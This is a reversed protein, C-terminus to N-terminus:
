VGHGNLWPGLPQHAFSLARILCMANGRQLQVALENLVVQKTPPYPVCNNAAAEEILAAVHHVTKSMAGYTEMVFPVFDGGDKDIEAEYKGCKYAERSHIASMPQQSAKAKYSKVSPCTISVDINLVRNQMFVKADMRRSSGPLMVEKMVQEGARSFLDVLLSNMKDHAAIGSQARIPPCGHAHANDTTLYGCVCLQSGKATPLVVSLGLRYAMALRYHIDLMQYAPCTPLVVWARQAGRGTVSHLRARDGQDDTRSLLQQWFVNLLKETIQHQLKERYKHEVAGRTLLELATMPLLPQAAVDDEASEDQANLHPALQLLHNIATQIHALELGAMDPPRYCQAKGAKKRQKKKKQCEVSDVWRQHARVREELESAGDQHRGFFHVSQAACSVFSGLYAAEAITERMVLGTGGM